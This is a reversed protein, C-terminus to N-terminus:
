PNCRQWSSSGEDVREVDIQHNVQDVAELVEEVTTRNVLSKGFPINAETPHCARFDPESQHHLVRSLRGSPAWLPLKGTGFLVVVPVGIADALHMPGTDLTIIFRLQVLAEIWRALSDCVQLELDTGLVKRAALEQGPGCLGVVTEHNRHLSEMLQKWNASDWERGEWPAVCIIGVKRGKAGSSNWRSFHPFQPPAIRTPLPAGVAPLFQLNM